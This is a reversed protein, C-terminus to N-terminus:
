SIKGAALFFDYISIAVFDADSDYCQEAYRYKIKDYFFENFAYFLEDDGGFITSLVLFLFYIINKKCTDFLIQLKAM